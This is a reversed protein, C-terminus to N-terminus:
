GELVELLYRLEQTVAEAGDVTEAVEERLVKGFRKRLRHVSVKVAGETMGLQEAIERYPMSGESGLLCGKLRDFREPHAPRELEALRALVRELLTRAWERAFLTEPTVTEAPEVALRDEAADIDLSLVIQGGGRKQANERDWENALYYKFSSLLFTRFKGRERDAKAVSGKELLRTFFGQTLDEAQETPHGRSRAYAYIPSWYAQCLDSLALDARSDANRVSSILSWRTAPFGGRAPTEAEKSREPAM